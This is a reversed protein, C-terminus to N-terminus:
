TMLREVPPLIAGHKTVEFWQMGIKNTELPAAKYAYRTKSQWSPCIMGHVLHYQGNLRGVYPTYYPKHTHGTIVFDPPSQNEQVCELFLDRLWNRLANGQNAGRGASPGHHVFWIRRGNINLRLEDWANVPGNPVAMMRRAILDDADGTHTETGTVYYTEDQQDKYGVESKFAKMLEVHIEIQEDELVTAIQPSNHHNGEIADGDHVIILKKRRRAQKVEAACKM